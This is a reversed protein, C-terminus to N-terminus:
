KLLLLYDVVQKRQAPDAIGGFPMKTGPVVKRPGSLWKDLTKANWVIGSKKLAESYSYGPATAAKRTSVGFLSPGFSHKGPERTHCGACQIFAPPAPPLPRLALERSAGANATPNALAHPVLAVMALAATVAVAVGEAFRILM